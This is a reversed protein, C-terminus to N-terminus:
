TLLSFSLSSPAICVECIVSFVPLPYASPGREQQMRVKQFVESISRGWWRGKARAYFSYVYPKVHRLGDKIEYEIMPEPPANQGNSPRFRKRSQQQQHQLHQQKKKKEKEHQSQQHQKPHHQSSSQPPQQEHLEGVPEALLQAPTFAAASMPPDVEMADSDDGNRHQSDQSYMRPHHSHTHPPFAETYCSPSLM